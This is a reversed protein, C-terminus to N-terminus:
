CLEIRTSSSLFLELRRGIFVLAREATPLPSFLRTISGLGASCDLSPLSFFLSFFISALLLFLCVVGTTVYALYLLLIIRDIMVCVVYLLLIVGDFQSGCFLTNSKQSVQRGQGGPRLAVARNERHPSQWRFRRVRAVRDAAAPEVAQLFFAGGGFVVFPQIPPMLPLPPLPPSQLSLICVTIILPPSSTPYSECPVRTPLYGPM